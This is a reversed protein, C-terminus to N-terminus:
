KKKIEGLYSELKVLARNETSTIAQRSCGLIRAVADSSQIEGNNYRCLIVQIERETLGASEFLDLDLKDSFKKLFGYNNNNLTDIIFVSVTHGFIEEVKPSTLCDYVYDRSYNLESAIQGLTYYQNIEFFKVIKVIDDQKNKEKDIGTTDVMSGIIKGSDDRLIIINNFSNIGGKKRGNLKNLALQDRITNGTLPIIINCYSPKNLIRQVSSKSVGTSNGIDIISATPNNKFFDVVKIEINKDM